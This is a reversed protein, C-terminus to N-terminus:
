FSEYVEYALTLFEGITEATIGGRSFEYIERNINIMRGIKEELYDENHLGWGAGKGSHFDIQYFNDERERDITLTPPYGRFRSNGLIQFVVQPDTNKPLPLFFDNELMWSEISLKLKGKFFAREGDLLIFYLCRELDYSLESEIEPKGYYNYRSEKLCRSIVPWFKNLLIKDLYDRTDPNELIVINRKNDAKGAKKIVWEKRM